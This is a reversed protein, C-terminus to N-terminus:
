ARLPVGPTVRKVTDVSNSGGQTARADPPAEWTGAEQGGGEEGGRQVRSRSWQPMTESTDVRDHDLMRDAREFVDLLFSMGGDGEAPLVLLRPAPLKPEDLCERFEKSSPINSMKTSRPSCSVLPPVSFTVMVTLADEILFCKSESSCSYTNNDIKRKAVVM